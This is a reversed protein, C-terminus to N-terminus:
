HGVGAIAADSWRAAEDLVPGPSAYATKVAGGPAIIEIRGDSQNCRVITLTPTRRVLARELAAMFRKVNTQNDGVLAGTRGALTPPRPTLSRPTDAPRVPSLVTIMDLPHVPM